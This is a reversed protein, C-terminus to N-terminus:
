THPNELLAVVSPPMNHSLANTILEYNKHMSWYATGNYVALCTYALVNDINGTKLLAKLRLLPIFPYLVLYCVDGNIEIKVTWYKRRQRPPIGPFTQTPSIKGCANAVAKLELNDLRVPLAQINGISFTKV